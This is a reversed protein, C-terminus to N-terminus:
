DRPQSGRTWDIALWASLLVHAAAAPWLLVGSAGGTFGLWALVLAVGTSYVLMGLNPPGPWCAIGLGILAIGAVRAITAAIGAVAAGLLLEGVLAPALLLALGTAIELVAAIVLVRPVM